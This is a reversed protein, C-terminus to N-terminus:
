RARRARRPVYVEGTDQKASTRRARSSYSAEDAYRSTRREAPHSARYERQERENMRAAVSRAPASSRRRERAAAERMAKRQVLTSVIFYLIGLASLGLLVYGLYLIWDGNDKAETNTKIASFDAVGTTVTKEDLTIDSWENPAADAASMGSTNYLNTQATVSGASGESSDGYNYDHDSGGGYYIPDDYYGQESDDEYYQAIGSGDGNENGTVGGTNPDTNGGPTNDPSPDADPAPTNDPTPDDAPEVVEAPAPDGGIEESEAHAVLMFGTLLFVATLILAISRFSKKM